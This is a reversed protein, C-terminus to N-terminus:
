NEIATMRLTDDFGRITAALQINQIFNPNRYLDSILSCYRNVGTPTKKFDLPNKNNSVCWDIFENKHYMLISKIVYYSLVNTNESYNRLISSSGSLFDSYKMNNHRLVKACQFLSFKTEINLLENLKRLMRVHNGKDRVSLYSVIVCNIIDAWIEAYSEGLNVDSKVAFMELIRRNTDSNTFPSFELGLSHFSEHILVKFWEEHRYVHIDTNSSCFTTFATNANIQDIPSGDKPIRKTFPTLNIYANVTLSCKTSAYMDVFHFWLYINKMYKALNPVHSIYVNVTRYKFKFTFHDMRDDPNITERIPAPIHEFMKGKVGYMPVSSLFLKSFKAEAVELQTFFESFLQESSSALPPVDIDKFDSKIFSVIAQSDPVLRM